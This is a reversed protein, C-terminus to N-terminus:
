VLGVQVVLIVVTSLAPQEVAVLALVQQEQMQVEMIRDMAVEVLEELLLLAMQLGLVEAVAMFEV